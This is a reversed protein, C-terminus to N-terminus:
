SLGGLMREMGTGSPTQRGKAHAARHKRRLAPYALSSSGGDYALDVDGLLACYVDWSVGRSPQEPGDGEGCADKWAVADELFAAHAPRDAAAARLAALLEARTEPSHSM